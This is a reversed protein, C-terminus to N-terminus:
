SYPLKLFNRRDPWDVLGSCNGPALVARTIQYLRQECSCPVRLSAFLFAQLLVSYAPCVRITFTAVSAAYANLPGESNFYSTFLSAATLAITVVAVYHACPVDNELLLHRNVSWKRSGAWKVVPRFDPSILNSCRACTGEQVWKTKAAASEWYFVSRWGSRKRHDHSPKSNAESIQYTKIIHASQNCLWISKELHEVEESLIFLRSGGGGGM